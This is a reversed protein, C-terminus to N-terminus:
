KLIMVKQSDLLLGDHYISVIYSGKALDKVVIQHLAQSIVDRKVINGQMDTLRLECQIKGETLMPFSINLYDRTPNPSIEVGFSYNNSTPEVDNNFVNHEQFLQIHQQPIPSIFTM